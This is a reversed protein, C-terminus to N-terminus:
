LCYRKIIITYVINGLSAIPFTLAGAAWPPKATWHLPEDPLTDGLAEYIFGSRVSEAYVVLLWLAVTQICVGKSEVTSLIIFTLKDLFLLYASRLM